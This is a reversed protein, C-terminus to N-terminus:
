HNQVHHWRWQFESPHLDNAKNDFIWNSNMAAFSQARCVGKGATKKAEQLVEYSLIRAQKGPYVSRVAISVGGDVM